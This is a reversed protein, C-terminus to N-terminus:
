PRSNVFQYTFDDFNIETLDPGFSPLPRNVFEKYAKLRYELMWDPENKHKSIERIIEESLGKKTKFISVDKDKFDYKYENKERIDM